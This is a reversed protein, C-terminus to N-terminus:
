NYGLPKDFDKYDLLEEVDKILGENIMTRIALDFEPSDKPYTLIIEECQKLSYITM